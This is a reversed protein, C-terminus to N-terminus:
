LEDVFSKYENSSLLEDLETPDKMKLKAIFYDYPSDNILEPSDELEENVEIVIGTIPTYIDSAAKVSEVAGLNDDVNLEDDVEPLEVYVIDGLSEQAYDTIGITAISGNVEVWEHNRTYYLGDVVKM